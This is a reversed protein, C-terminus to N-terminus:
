KNFEEPFKKKYAKYKESKLIEDIDMEFLDTHYHGHWSALLLDGKKIKSLLQYKNVRRNIWINGSPQILILCVDGTDWPVIDSEGQRLGLENNLKWELKVKETKM